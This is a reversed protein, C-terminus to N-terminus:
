PLDKCIAAVVPYKIVAPCSQKTLPNGSLRLFSLTRPLADENIFSIQNDRLDLDQLSTYQFGNIASIKNGAVSLKLLNAPLAPISTLELENHTLDLDSLNPMAGIGAWDAVKNNRATIVRVRKHGGLGWLTPLQNDDLNVYDLKPLGALGLISTLGLNNLSINVRTYLSNLLTKCDGASVHEREFLAVFMRSAQASDGKLCELLFINDDTPGCSTYIAPDRMSEFEFKRGDICTVGFKGNPLAGYDYMTETGSAHLASNTKKKCSFAALAILSMLFVKRLVPVEMLFLLQIM